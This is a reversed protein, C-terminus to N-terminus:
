KEKRRESELDESFKNYPLAKLIFQNDKNLLYCSGMYFHNNDPRITVIQPPTYSRSDWELSIHFLLISIILVLLLIIIRGQFNSM